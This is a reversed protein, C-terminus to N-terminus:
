WISYSPSKLCLFNETLILLPGEQGTLFEPDNSTPDKTLPKQENRFTYNEWLNEYIQSHSALLQMDRLLLVTVVRDM